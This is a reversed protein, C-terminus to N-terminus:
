HREQTAPGPSGEREVDFVSSIDTVVMAMLSPSVNLGLRNEAARCFVAADQWFETVSDAEAADVPSGELPPQVGLATETIPM